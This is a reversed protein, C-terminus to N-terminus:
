PTSPLHVAAPEEALPVHSIGAPAPRPACFMVALDLRGAGVDRLLAGTTDESTYHMVAPAEDACAALLAPGVGHRTTPSLGLRLRGSTAAGARECRM